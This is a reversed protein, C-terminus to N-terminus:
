RALLKQIFQGQDGKLLLPLADPLANFLPEIWAKDAKAFNGLVHNTVDERTGPHGVGIRLRWYNKGIHADISKLGNHGGHGGGLKVKIQGSELDIDDHIVIVSSPELKYYRMAEGVSEGSLNMYTQPKLLLLTYDEIQGTSLQGKFKKQWAAAQITEALSDVAMFGINHRNFSYDAGPNGLGVIMHTPQAM